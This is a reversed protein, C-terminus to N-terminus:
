IGLAKRVLMEFSKTFKEDDEPTRKKPGKGHMRPDQRRAKKSLHRQFPFIIQTDGPMFPFERDEVRCIGNGSVCLGLELTDHYHLYNVEFVELPWPLVTHNHHQWGSRSTAYIAPLNATSRKRVIKAGKRM